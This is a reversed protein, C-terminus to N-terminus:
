FFQVLALLLHGNLSGLTLTFTMCSWPKNFHALQKNKRGFDDQM